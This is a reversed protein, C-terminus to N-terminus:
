VYVMSRDGTAAPGELHSTINEYVASLMYTEALTRRHAYLAWSYSVIEPIM